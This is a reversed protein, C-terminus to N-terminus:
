QKVRLLMSTGSELKVNSKQLEGRPAGNGRGNTNQAVVSSACLVMGVIAATLGAKMSPADERQIVLEYRVVLALYKM